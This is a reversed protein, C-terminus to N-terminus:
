VTFTVKRVRLLSEVVGSKDCRSDNRGSVNNKECTPELADVIQQQQITPVDFLIDLRFILTTKFM